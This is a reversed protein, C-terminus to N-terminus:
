CKIVESHKMKPIDSHAYAAYVFDHTLLLFKGGTAEIQEKIKVITENVYDRAPKIVRTIENQTKDGFRWQTDIYMSFKAFRRYMSTITRRYLEDSCDGSVLRHALERCRVAEPGWLAELYKVADVKLIIKGPIPKDYIDSEPFAVM